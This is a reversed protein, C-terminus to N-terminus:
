TARREIDIPFIRRLIQSPLNLKTKCCFFHIGQPKKTILPDKKREVNKFYTCPLIEWSSHKETHVFVLGDMVDAIVVTSIIRVYVFYPFIIHFYHSENGDNAWLYFFVERTKPKKESHNPLPTKLPQKQVEQCKFWLWKWISGNYFIYVHPRWKIQHNLMSNEKETFHIISRTCNCICSFRNELLAVNRTGLKMEVRWFFLLHFDLEIKM